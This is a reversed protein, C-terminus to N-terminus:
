LKIAPALTKKYLWQAFKVSPEDILTTVVEALWLTVPLLILQPGLFAPEMGLPGRKSMPFINVWGPATIANTERTYGTAAYLREGLTWLVPGHVLYLAFSVRGLYQNFRTEFFSKLWGIRQISPVTFTAAWFLYFWKYDFVAQPKLFSLYYWGPSRRLEMVDNSHGPIGGLWLAVAFMTYFFCMKYPKLYEFFRPLNNDMALLDLDCLLMGSIFASCFWGDAIWMFYVILAVQGLLRTNRTCRSFAMLTTYILVSGRFEVPISWAHFNYSFWPEGGSRFVFTFNKIECYWKWVEDRFKSEPNPFAGRWALQFFLLYLFTTAIVPIYLRLWRRFLASSLNDGLKIYDGSQILSLPKTSLVYGSLIFFVSVAFHGGSFFLRVVPLQVFYHEQNYGYAHEFVLQREHAWGQHHGWYVLFAAFGRVGDLYATRRLPADKGSSKKLIAPRLMESARDIIRTFTPIQVVQKAAPTWQGKELLGENLNSM